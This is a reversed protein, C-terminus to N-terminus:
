VTIKNNIEQINKNISYVSKIIVTGGDGNKTQPGLKTAYIEGQNRKCCFYINFIIGLFIIISIIIIGVIVLPNETNIYTIPILNSSDISRSPLETQTPNPTAIPNTTPLNLIIKSVKFFTNNEIFNGYIELNKLGTFKVYSLILNGISFISSINNNSTNNYFSCFSIFGEKQQSYIAAKDLSFTKIFYSYEILYNNLNFNLCNGINGKIDYFTTYIISIITNKSVIAGNNISTFNCNNINLKKSNLISLVPLNTNSKLIKNSIQCNESNLININENLNFNLNSNIIKLPNNNINFNGNKQEFNILNLNSFSKINFNGNIKFSNLILSNFHIINLNQNILFNKLNIETKILTPLYILNNININKKYKFIISTNLLLTWQLNTVFKM